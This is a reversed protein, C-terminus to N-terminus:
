PADELLLHLLVMHTVDLLETIDNYFIQLPDWCCGTCSQHIGHGSHNLCHYIVITSQFIDELQNGDGETSSVHRMLIDIALFFTVDGGTSKARKLEMVADQINMELLDAIALKVQFQEALSTKEQSPPKVFTLIQSLQSKYSDIAKEAMDLDALAKTIYDGDKQMVTALARNYLPIFKWCAGEELAKTYMEISEALHGKQRLINGSRIYYYVMTSPSQKSLLKQKANSLDNNLQKELTEISTKESFYKLFWLGWCEHLCSVIVDRQGSLVGDKYIKDLFDLYVSFLKEKKTIKPIEKELFRSLRIKVVINRAEKAKELDQLSFSKIILLDTLTSAMAKHIPFNHNELYHNLADELLNETLSTHYSLYKHFSTVSTNLSMVMKVSDSFHSTCMILQASGPSGQHATRGFAQQEVRVNLPLFTQVVFLGGAENVGECVKLDTGRGALNTAIIIEGAQVTSNTVTSNDSNNNVYRKLKTASMIRAFANYFMEARNITECIVLAARPGRYVTSTVQDQVVNCISRIWEGEESIVMGELEYLKRRRFSPIKCTKIGDYLRKLMDLETQDGLTGTIGYIQNPYKKFLGVNSMFNTILSMNSLKTHHKMELFQQLGNGWRMNNQVVGTCEYDVPVVGDGHFIFEHGETMKTALLANEIWTSMKDNILDQLGPIRSQNQEKVTESQYRKKIMEGLSKVLSDEEFHVVHCKRNGLLVISIDQEKDNGASGIDDAQKRLTGDPEQQYLKFFYQPFNRVFTTLFAVMQVVSANDLQKLVDGMNEEMKIPSKLPMIGTDVAMEVISLQDINKNEHIIESMVDSFPQIPGLIEGTDFRKLQNIILWIEALIVNLPEMLPLNSNLYVVELGKDLMLSDVEDVIVCQFERIPRVDRRHFCQRLFDGAFSQTTGYVVQCEYCKKLEKGDSKNTNVDVTINLEKYFALWEDADREALVPSSSIIDPNKKEIMVKYAAFMAVICSKGEGTLVQILRSSKSLVLICWSVMQTVRPKYKKTKEVAKCLKFLNQKIGQLHPATSASRCEYVSHVIEKVERMTQEDIYSQECIEKVIEDLTKEDTNKATDIIKAEVHDMTNDNVTLDSVSIKHIEVQHLIRIIWTHFDENRGNYQEVLAKFLKVVDDERWQGNKCLSFLRSSLLKGSAEM